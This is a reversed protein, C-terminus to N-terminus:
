LANSNTELLNNTSAVEDFLRHAEGLGEAVAELNGEIAESELAKCTNSLEDLGVQAASGAILHILRRAERSDQNRIAEDINELHPPTESL